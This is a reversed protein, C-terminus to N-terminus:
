TTDARSVEEVTLNLLLHDEENQTIFVAKTGKEGVFIQGSYKISNTGFLCKLLTRTTCRSM